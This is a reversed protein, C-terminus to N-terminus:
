LQAPIWTRRVFSKKEDPSDELTKELIKARKLKKVQENVKLQNLKAIRRNRALKNAKETGLILLEDGDKNNFIPYPMLVAGRARASEGLGCNSTIVIFLITLACFWTLRMNDSHQQHFNTQGFIGVSQNKLHFLIIQVFRSALSQSCVLLAVM